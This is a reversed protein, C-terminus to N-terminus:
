YSTDKHCTMCDSTYLSFLAPSLYCGHLVRFKVEEKDFDALEGVAVMQNRDTLFRMMWNCYDLLLGIRGLKVVLQSTLVTNFVLSVDMFLVQACNGGVDM